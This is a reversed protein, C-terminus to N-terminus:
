AEIVMEKKLPEDAIHKTWILEKNKKVECVMFGFNTIGSCQRQGYTSNVQLAPTTIAIRNMCEVFNYYHVHSRIFVNATARGELSEKLIAFVIDRAPASSRTHPLSGSSVKHKLDFTIGNVKVLLTEDINKKDDEKFERAIINEWDEQEGTHYPTGRTFFYRLPVKGNLRKIQRLIKIAIDSQEELNTTILEIGGNRKAKGDILDGNCFVIDYPGNKKIGKIFFDWAKLQIKNVAHEPHALGYRHGCHLDSLILIRKSSKNVSDCPKRDTNKSNEM